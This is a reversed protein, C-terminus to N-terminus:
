QSNINIVARIQLNTFKAAKQSSSPNLLVHVEVVRDDINSTPDANIVNQRKVQIGVREVIGQLEDTLSNSVMKVDQGVRIKNIDSQYVEVVGYMQSTTGIDAIGNTGVVEGPRAFIQYIQANQPSKIYARELNEEAVKLSAISSKVDTEAAIVDVPRVESIKNLTFQSEKVQQQMSTEIKTLNARAENIQQQGSKQIRSLNAKAETVQQNGSAKIRKLNSQAQNVKQQSTQLILHKSDGSSESIAGQRYLNGYRKDESQANILGAKLEAIVGEQIEIQATTEALIKAVIANQAEMQTQTEVLLRNVIAKQAVVNTVLESQLRIIVTKQADIEGKKAGAKVKALSAQAVTVKEKAENVSAQLRGQSDLTAILQGAKVTAGEEVLLKDIKVGETSTAASLKIIEGKPALKGLATVTKPQVVATLKAKKTAEATQQQQNLYNMYAVSLGILLFILAPFLAYLPRKELKKLMKDIMQVSIYVTKCLYDNMILIDRLTGFHLILVIFQSRGRLDSRNGVPSINGL